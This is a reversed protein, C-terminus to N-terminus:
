QLASQRRHALAVVIQATVKVKGNAASTSAIMDADHWHSHRLRPGLGLLLTRSFQNSIGVLRIVVTSDRRFMIHNVQKRLVAHLGLPQLLLSALENLEHHLM